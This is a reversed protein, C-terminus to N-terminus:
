RSGTEERKRHEEKLRRQLDLYIRIDNLVMLAFLSGIGLVFILIIYGFNFSAM